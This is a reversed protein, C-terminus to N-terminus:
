AIPIELTAAFGEGPASAFTLGWGEQEAVQVLLSLGLGQGERLFGEKGAERIRQFPKGLAKVQHPALGEGEDSVQICLRRRTRWTELSTTGRGHGLANELLTLIAARLSTLPAQGSAACLGLQLTRGEMEFGPRLDDAVDRIWDPTALARPGTSGGGRIVRLGNEIILTLHDVEDGIKLLEEDAREPSLRGLRLSDCRFKLLALPTKLSHTLSAMRDADLVARRRARHRLWLGLGIALGVVISMSYAVYLQKRTTKRYAREQDEFAIGGLNWGDGFANTKTIADLQYYALRYPDAQLHPAKGWDLPVLDNRALESERALGMRLGPKPGLSISLEREVEPSGPRWRKIVLWRDSLLVVTAVKGFDPDQSKPPNWEFRQAMEAHSMWDLYLQAHPDEAARVLHGGKRVWLTRGEFRDLLAVVLPQDALFRRVEPETGTQVSALLPLSKWHREVAEFDAWHADTFNNQADNLLDRVYITPAAVLLGATVLGALILLILGSRQQLRQWRTPGKLGPHLFRFRSARHRYM